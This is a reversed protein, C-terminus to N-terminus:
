TSREFLSNLTDRLESLQRITMNEVEAPLNFLSTKRAQKPAPAAHATAEPNISTVKVPKRAGEKAEEYTAGLATYVGPKSYSPRDVDLIGKARMHSMAKMTQREDHNLIRAMQKADMSGRDKLITWVREHLPKPKVGAAIFAETIANM